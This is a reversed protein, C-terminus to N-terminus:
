RHAARARAPRYRPRRGDGHVPHRAAEAREQGSQPEDPGDRCGARGAARRRAAARPAPLRREARECTRAGAHLRRGDVGVRAHFTARRRGAGHADILPAVPVHVGARALAAALLGRKWAAYPADALTQVSCGGCTTFYPCFPAIRDPSPEIVGVLAGREGDRDISVREGPLAYPVYVRTGDATAVGEGRQGLREITVPMLAGVRM